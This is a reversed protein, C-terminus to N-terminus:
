PPGPETENPTKVRYCDVCRYQGPNFDLLVVRVQQCGACWRLGRSRLCAYCIGSGVVKRHAGCSQCPLPHKKKARHLVENTRDRSRRCEACVKKVGTKTKSDLHFDIPDKEKECSPCFTM